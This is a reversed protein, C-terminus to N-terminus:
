FSDTKIVFGYECENEGWSATILFGRIDTKGKFYTSDLGSAMHKGIEFTCKGNTLEVPINIIGKEGYRYNGKDNILIDSITFKDPPYNIFTITCTEGAKIYPIRNTQSKRALIQFTGERDYQIGDWRNKESIYDIQRDGITVTIPPPEQMSFPQSDFWSKLAERLIDKNVNYYTGNIQVNDGSGTIRLVKRDGSFFDYYYSYGMRPVQDLAKKYYRNNLLNILEKIKDKDSTEIFNGNSGDRMFVKTINAQDIGLLNEFSKNSYQYLVFAIACVAAFAPLIVRMLRKNVHEAGKVDANFLGYARCFM